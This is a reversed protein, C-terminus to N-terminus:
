PQAEAESVLWATLSDVLEALEARDRIILGGPSQGLLELHPGVDLLVFKDTFIIPTPQDSTAGNTAEDIMLDRSLACILCGCPDIVDNELAAQYEEDPMPCFDERIEDLRQMLDNYKM